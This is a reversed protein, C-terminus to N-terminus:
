RLFPALAELRADAKQRRLAAADIPSDGALTRRALLLTDRWEGALEPVGSQACRAAAEDLLALAHSRDGARLLAACLRPVDHLRQERIRSGGGRAEAQALYRDALLAPDTGLLPAVGPENRVTLEVLWAMDALLAAERVGSSARAEDLAALALLLRDRTAAARQDPPLAVAGGDLVFRFAFVSHGDTWGPTAALLQRAREYAEVPDANETAETVSRWLFPLAVPRALARPAAFASEASGHMAVVAVWLALCAVVVARRM